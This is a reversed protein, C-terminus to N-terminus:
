GLDKRLFYRRHGPPYDALMGFVTYGHREYFGPAQFGFSDLWVARCGRARAEDEARRLIKRGLGGGRLEEPLWLLQIYLWGWGTAGWLGGQVAGRDRVLVALPRYDAPGAKAENFAILGPLIVQEVAAGPADTVVIEPSM